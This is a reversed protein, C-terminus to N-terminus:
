LEDSGKLLTNIDSILMATNLPHTSYLAHLIYEGTANRSVLYLSDGHNLEDPDSLRSSFFLNFKRDIHMLERHNLYVGEFEVNFFQAFQEPQTKDVQPTLNIFTIGTQGKLEQFARSNYFYQLEQLVPTCVNECGVYGFFLLQVPKSLPNLYTADVVVNREIKGKSQHSFLLAQLLPVAVFLTIFLLAAVAKKTRNM